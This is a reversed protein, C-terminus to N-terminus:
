RGRTRQILPEIKAAWHVRLRFQPFELLTAAFVRRWFPKGIIQDITPLNSATLDRDFQQQV